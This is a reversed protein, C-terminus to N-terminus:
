IDYTTTSNDDTALDGDINFDAPSPGTYGGLDEITIGFESVDAVEDFQLEGDGNIDGALVDMIGNNDVDILFVENNDITMEAVNAEVDPRYEVGLVEVQPEVTMEAEQFYGPDDAPIPTDLTVNGAFDDQQTHSMSDWEEVTYTNYLNGHWEFVGGAGLEARATAFAQAFSMDDTIGDAVELNGYDVVTININQAAPAAPAAAVDAADTTAEAAPAAAHDVTIDVNGATATYDTTTDDASLTGLKGEDDAQADDHSTTNDAKDDAKADDAKDDTKPKSSTMAYAATAGGGFMMGTTGGIAVKKWMSGKARTTAAAGLDIAPTPNDFVTTDSASDITTNDNQDNNYQPTSLNDNFHIKTAM